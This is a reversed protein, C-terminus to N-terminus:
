AIRVTDNKQVIFNENILGQLIKKTRMANEGLLSPLSATSRPKELILKLIRGRLQRDSGTFPSQRVYQASRRSANGHVLKLMAGYDMLASYWRRPNRRDLTAEVLPLLEADSVKKQRSFFEHIFLTRINTELFVGPKNYAFARVAAATYPGVGPLVVLDELREPVKGKHRTVIEQAAKQLMLARRNYGLGQWARLIDAPKARALSQVTPFKKLFAQYYSVVRATQTQQLMIESILIRYPNVTNRWPFSRAQRRYHDFVKKRFAGM